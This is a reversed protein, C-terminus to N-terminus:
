DDAKKGSNEKSVAQWDTTVVILGVILDQLGVGVTFALWFGRVGM